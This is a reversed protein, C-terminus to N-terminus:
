SRFLRSYQTEHQSSLIALAPAFNSRLQERERKWQRALMAIQEGVHLLVRQGASQGLPVSKMAVLVQNEAWSWVYAAMSELPDIVWASAAGSWVYPLSPEDVSELLPLLTEPLGPLVALLARMSYGMQVTASRLEATERSALFQENLYRLTEADRAGWAAGMEQLCHVEYSGMSFSLVDTIWQRVSTEDNILGCEIAAELGQSHSYGGIPFAQSAIQLLRMRALLSM